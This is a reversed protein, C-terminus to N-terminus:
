SPMEFAVPSDGWNRMLGGRRRGTMHAPNDSPNRFCSRRPRRTHGPVTTKSCSDRENWACCTSPTICKIQLGICINPIKIKKPSASPVEHNVLTHRGALARSVLYYDGSQLFTNIATAEYDQQSAGAGAP